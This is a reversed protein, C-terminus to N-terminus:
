ALAGFHILDVGHDQLLTRLGPTTLARLEVERQHSYRSWPVDNYGPHCMLETVGDSIRALAWRLRAETWYAEETADGMFHDPIRLGREQADVRLDPQDARMPLGLEAALDLVIERIPSYRHLFHHSDLHTPLRGVVATFKEVQARLERAAEGPEARAAVGKPDRLLWGDGDVLSRVEWAPLVPAGFTLNLHLGVGLSSGRLDRLIENDAPLNIMVTTSTLVGAAAAEFIGRSVGPSLNFDDANVILRKVGVALAPHGTGGDEAVSM